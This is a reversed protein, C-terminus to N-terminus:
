VAHGLGSGANFFGDDRIERVVFRVPYGNVRTIPTIASALPM